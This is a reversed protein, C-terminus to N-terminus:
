LAGRKKLENELIQLGQDTTLHNQTIFDKFNKYQLFNM